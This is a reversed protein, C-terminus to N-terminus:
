NRAMIEVTNLLKKLGEATDLKDNREYSNILNRICRALIEEETSVEFHESRPEVGNQKLFYYCQDYTVVKGHDFPDILLAENSSKFKMMFHIPMNMGYFPLDLRRALFLVILALSIPLGRRRDIVRNLYSNNPNYYDTTSGSFGLEHFVFNLVKHMKQTESLSYRVDDAIMDAFRDLKKKYERERLTPNDFRSLILVANELQEMNNVGGELVDLFDEEVSGFTIHQIIENILERAENDDTENKQEDLLPVATEGLEFLRNRVQSKVYPDPDELLYVLSEIEAKNAAM